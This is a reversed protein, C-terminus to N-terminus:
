LSCAAIVAALGGAFLGSARVGFRFGCKRRAYIACVALNVAYSLAFAISAGEAPGRGRGICWAAALFVAQTSFDALLFARMDAAALMPIALVWSTVKFYDGILTWRLFQAAPHFAASYLLPIVFPKLLAIAIIIPTAVLIAITLVSAIHRRREANDRAAALAPLYYVQMAALILTVHNMSINWAADFQGTVDIGSIRTIRARLTLLILSALLSTALMAASISFFHRAARPNFRAPSSDGFNTSYFFPVSWETWPRTPVLSSSSVQPSLATQGRKKNLSNRLCSVLQIRLGQPPRAMAWLAGGLAAAASCALMAVLGSPKGGFIVTFAASLVMALAAILQIVALRGIEGRARLLSNLFTFASSLIVPITLWRLVPAIEPPLGVVGAVTRPVALMTVAVSATAIAFLRLVTGVFDRQKAGTFLSAGQVLATQGNLTSATLATAHIQQLTSLLAVSAPGLSMAIIKTALASLLGSALSGAGTQSFARWGNRARPETIPQTATSM